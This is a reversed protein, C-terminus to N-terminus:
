VTPQINHNMRFVNTPDYTAKLALLREYNVGYADRVRGMTEDRDLDNVYVGAPAHPRVAEYLGRAWNVNSEDNTTDTWSSLIILDFPLDRHAYATADPAVRTYAGHADAIAIASFPSPVQGAFDVLAEIVEDTIQRLMTSKWYNRRGPPSAETIIGQVATYPMPGITDMVPTGFHRLPEVAREGEALEGAYCTVLAIVQTGDPTTLFAAYTTLEDPEGAVFDRYFRLVDRARDLPHVVMGGLVTPGVPHLQYEFSTVVGFNAGAGRLAWFLDPNEVASAHRLEGDATVVDVALLNDLTLGYKGSLWGQGGGLTLGAIGTTSVTGGVTALGFAQSEHDFEGWLVGPQARATQTAPDIRIGKMPSLDIMLGGDCVALGAVNHGGGRISVLLEQERAFRV